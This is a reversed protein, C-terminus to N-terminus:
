PLSGGGEVHVAQGNKDMLEDFTSVSTKLPSSLGHAYGPWDGTPCSLLIPCLSFPGTQPARGLRGAIAQQPLISPCNGNRETDEFEIIFLLNQNKLIQSCLLNYALTKNKSVPDLM